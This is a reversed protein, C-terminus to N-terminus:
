KDARQRFAEGVKSGVAAGAGTGVGPMLLTGLAAGIKAGATLSVEPADVTGGVLLPVGVAGGLEVSVRGSLDRSAAVSVQGSARLAGSSAVLNSLEILKGRTRVQGSMTDLRTDGGRSMGVSTVAKELDIGHLVAGRVTFGSQTQLVDLLATPTRTRASLTTSAELRGSLPQAAQVKDSVQPATLASVEVDRTQLQGKFAFEAGVQAAPQLEIRGKVSGGAVQLAVDWALGDRQLALRTGQLRGKLIELQLSQPLGDSSLRADAQVTIAAGKADVWTVDDLVSRRPLYQSASSAETDRGSTAARRKQLAAVLGDIATQPLVAHRVVLTGPAVRGLLLEGWAPRLEVRELTLASRSRLEIGELVLAPLPWVALDIREIRIAVGLAQGAERMARSRFDETAIWRKLAFLAGALLLGLVLFVILAWQRARKMGTNQGGSSGETAVL